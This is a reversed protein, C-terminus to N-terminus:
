GKLKSRKRSRGIIETQFGVSGTQQLHYEYVTRAEDTDALNLALRESERYETKPRTFSHEEGAFRCWAVLGDEVRFDPTSFNLSKSVYLFNLWDRYERLRDCEAQLLEAKEFELDNFYREREQEILELIGNNPHLFAERLLSDLTDLSPADEERLSGELALCYGKCIGSSYKDCPYTGTECFPIKMLRSLSDMVDTLFFRSRWPGAYTWDENTESRLCAFPFRGADLALYVYDASPRIAQQLLPHRTRAWVLCHLLADIARSSPQYELRDARQTLEAHQAQTEAKSGLNKLRQKLNPTYGCLLAQDGEWLCFFVWGKPLRAGQQYLTKGWKVSEMCAMSEAQAKIDILINRRLLPIM